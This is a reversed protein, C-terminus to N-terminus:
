KMEELLKDIEAESLSKIHCLSDTELRCVGKGKVTNAIIAQPQNSNHNKIVKLIDLLDKINHGDVIDTKWKFAKFKEDIPELNIINKCYDLMCIKNNDIIMTLNNLQHHAAFMVAEWVSGEYLEGDGILVVM